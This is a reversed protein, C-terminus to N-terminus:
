LARLFAMLGPSHWPPRGKPTESMECQALAKSKMELDVEAYVNTTDLSVHGLWARITNIDVGARLLHVATAHRITHPSVRKSLLSPTHNAAELVHRRVVAYIGFRTIPEKRRNMFVRENPMRGSILPALTSVTSSWLPCLRTKRGKGLVKVAPPDELYLDGVTVCAAEDARTGTNYLFLLLAYDRLGQASKRDPTDLLAKMEAEELYPLSTKFGRKLPVTQISTCWSIHEPSHTAVFRSLAHVAALRQNRTAIGCGRDKEIHDLFSRVGEPTIHEITLRDVQKGLTKGIFPILLTLTDRYSIQTNRALNREGVVHELLFRRVWPGLLNNDRM